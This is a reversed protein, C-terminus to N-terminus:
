DLIVGLSGEYHGLITQGSADIFSYDVDITGTQTSSDFSYSNITLFPGSVGPTKVTGSSVMGFEINNSIFSPSLSSVLLDYTIVSDGANGVYQVGTQINPYTPNVISPNEIDRINYFVWNKMTTSFLYDGSSGNINTDNDYMRGDTFFLNFETPNADTDFEIYCNPTEHFVGSITFGDTPNQPDNQQDDNKDCSILVSTVALLFLLSYIKKM